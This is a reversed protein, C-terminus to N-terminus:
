INQRYDEPVNEFSTWGFWEALGFFDAWQDIKRMDGLYDDQYDERTIKALEKGKVYFPDSEYPKIFDYGVIGSIIEYFACNMINSAQYIKKPTMARIRKDM